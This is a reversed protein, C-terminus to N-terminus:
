ANGGREDVAVVQLDAARVFIVHDIEISENSEDM